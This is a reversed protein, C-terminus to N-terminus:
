VEVLKTKQKFKEINKEILVGNEHYKLLSLNNKM